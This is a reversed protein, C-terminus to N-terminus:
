PSPPDSVHPFLEKFAGQTIRHTVEVPQDDFLEHLTKQTHGFTGELHPYDSGWLVKDYGHATLTPIASLDHQFSTYVQDYLIERPSRQLVPRVFMAHQRYAEEMRDGLFPVWSAGAESVLMKFGPHRDLAGSAVMLMAARQGSYTSNTHNLVAGGPGRYITHEGPDGGIHFAGVLGLEELATWLPEWHDDNLQPVSHDYTPSNPMGPAPLGVAKLGLSAAHHAEAIADDVDRLPISAVLVLRDPAIAQAVNAKWENEAAAAARLLGRDRLAGEWLGLSSYVVEAWVGEQDLDAMRARLDRAGPPRSSLEAMSMGNIKKTMIKPLQRTFATGDIHVTEENEGTRESWPMRSALDPALIQKWLDDPEIFHSDGSHAWIKREVEVDM